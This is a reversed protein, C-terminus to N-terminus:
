NFTFNILFNDRPPVPPKKKWNTTFIAKLSESYNIQSYPKVMHYHAGLQYSDDIDPPSKSGTFIIVPIHKYEPHAKLSALCQKGNIEPMNIDLFIIDYTKGEDLLSFLSTCRDTTTLLHPVKLNKLAEAFIDADDKDDDVLLIKLANEPLSNDNSDDSVM